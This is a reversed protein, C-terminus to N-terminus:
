QCGIHFLNSAIAHLKCYIQLLLILTLKHKLIRITVNKCIDVFAVTVRAEVISRTNILWVAKVAAAWLSKNAVSTFCTLALKM